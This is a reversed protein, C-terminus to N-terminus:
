HALAIIIDEVVDEEIGGASTNDVYSRPCNLTFTAREEAAAIIALGPFCDLRHFTFGNPSERNCRRVGLSQNNACQVAYKAALVSTITPLADRRLVVGFDLVDFRERHIRLIGVNDIGSGPM